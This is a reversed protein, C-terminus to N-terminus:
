RMGLDLELDASWEDCGIDDAERGTQSAAPGCSPWRWPTFPRAVADGLRNGLAVRRGLDAALLEVLEHQGLTRHTWFGPPRSGAVPDIDSRVRKTGRCAARHRENSCSGCM